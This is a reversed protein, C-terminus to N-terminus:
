RGFPTNTNLFDGPPADLLSRFAEIFASVSKYGLTGAVVKVSHGDSLLDLSALIRARKRWERYSMGVDAHLHRAFSRSSMRTRVASADLGAIRVGEPLLPPRVAVLYFGTGVTPLGVGVLLGAALRSNM